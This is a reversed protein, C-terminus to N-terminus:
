TKGGQIVKLVHMGPMHELAEMLEEGTRAGRLLEWSSVDRNKGLVKMSVIILAVTERVHDIAESVKTINRGMKISYTSKRDQSNFTKNDVYNRFRMVASFSGNDEQRAVLMWNGVGFEVHWIGVTKDDVAFISDNMNM